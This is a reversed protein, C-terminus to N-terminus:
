IKSLFLVHWVFCADMFFYFIQIFCTSEEVNGMRFLHRLSAQSGFAKPNRLSKLYGWVRQDDGFVKTLLGDDGDIKGEFSDSNLFYYFQFNCSNRYRLMSIQMIIHQTILCYIVALAHRRYISLPLYLDFGCLAILFLFRLNVICLVLAVLNHSKSLLLSM